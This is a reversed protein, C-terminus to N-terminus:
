YSSPSKLEIRANAPIRLGIQKAALSSLPSIAPYTNGRGIVKSKM